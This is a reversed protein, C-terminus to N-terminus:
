FRAKFNMLTTLNSSSNKPIFAYFLLLISDGWTPHQECPGRSFSCCPPSTGFLRWPLLVERATAACSSWPLLSWRKPRVVRLHRIFPCTKIFPCPLLVRGQGNIYYYFLCASHFFYKIVHFDNCVSSMKKPFLYVPMGM